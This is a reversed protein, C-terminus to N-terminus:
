THSHCNQSDFRTFTTHRLDASRRLNVSLVPKPVSYVAKSQECGQFSDVLSSSNLFRFPCLFCSPGRVRQELIFLLQFKRGPSLGCKATARFVRPHGGPVRPKPM